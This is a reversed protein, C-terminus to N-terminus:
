PPWFPNERDAQETPLLARLLELRAPGLTNNFLSMGTVNRGPRDLDAVLGSEVPDDIGTFVIPISSTAVKAAIPSVVDGAAVIVAVDRAVLEAARSPLREDVRGAWRYAIQVNSGEVYGTAHLGELFADILKASEGPSRSSLFGVTPMASHQGVAPLPWATAVLGTMFDRRKM